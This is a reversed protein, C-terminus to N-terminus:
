MSQRQSPILLDRCLALAQHACEPGPNSERCRWQSVGNPGSGFVTGRGAQTTSNAYVASEFGAAERRSLELREVPVSPNIARYM